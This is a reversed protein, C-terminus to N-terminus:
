HKNANTISVINTCAITCIPSNDDKLPQVFNSNMRYENCYVYDVGYRYKFTIKYNM